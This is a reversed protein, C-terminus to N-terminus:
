LIQCREDWIKKEEEYKAFHKKLQMSKTQMVNQKQQYTFQVSKWQFASKDNQCM